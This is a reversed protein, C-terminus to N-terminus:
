RKVHNAAEISWMTGDSPRPMQQLSLQRNSMNFGARKCIHRSLCLRSILNGDKSPLLSIKPHTKGELYGGKLVISGSQMSNCHLLTLKLPITEGVLAFTM